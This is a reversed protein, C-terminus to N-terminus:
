KKNVYKELYEDERSALTLISLFIFALIVLMIFILLFM